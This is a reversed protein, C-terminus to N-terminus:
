KYLNGYKDIGALFDKGFRKRMQFVQVYSNNGRKGALLWKALIRKEGSSLTIDNGKYKFINKKFDFHYDGKSFVTKGSKKALASIDDWEFFFNETEEKM